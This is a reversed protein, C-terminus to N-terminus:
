MLDLMRVSTNYVYLARNYVPIRAETERAQEVRQSLTLNDDNSVPVDCVHSGNSKRTVIIYLELPRLRGEDM